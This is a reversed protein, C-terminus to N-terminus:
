PTTVRYFKRVSNLNTEAFQWVGNTNTTNTRISQWQIPAALNTATQLVYNQGPQCIMAFNLNSGAGLNASLTRSDLAFLQAVENSSLARDYIRVEDLFGNFFFGVISNTPNVYGWNAGIMLSNTTFNSNYTITSTGVLNGDEYVRTNQNGAKLVFILHHWQGIPVNGVDLYDTGMGTVRIAGSSMISCYFDSNDTNYAEYKSIITNNGSGNDALLKVWASITRETDLRMGLLSDNGLVEVYNSGNLSVANSNFGSVFLANNRNTGNNGFGSADNADGNFPYYAILGQFLSFNSNTVVWLHAMSSTVAGYANTIVVDFNGANTNQANAVTLSNNTANLINNTTNFRWRYSLPTSGSAGVSFVANSGLTAVQAAPQNTIQPPSGLFFNDAYLQGESISGSYTNAIVAITFASSATMTPSLVTRSITDLTVWNTGNGSPDYSATINQTASSYSLRLVFNTSIATTSQSLVGSENKTSFTQGTADRAMAIRIGKLAVMDFVWLQLQSSGNGSYNATNHGSIIATWNESATPTGKWALDAEQQSTSTSAVTFSGHGNAASVLMTGQASQTVTWNTSISSTFDDTGEWAAGLVFRSFGLTAVLVFSLIKINM